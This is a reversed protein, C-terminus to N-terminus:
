EVVVAFFERTGDPSTALVVCEGPKSASLVGDPSIKAVDDFYRISKQWRNDPHPSIGVRDADYCAWRLQFASLQSTSFGFAPSNFDATEGVRVRIPDLHFTRNGGGGIRTFHLSRNASDVHVCDFTQEYPTEAKKDPFDPGWPASGYRFDANYAADSPQTIHWIGNRFTQRECHEHGTLNCLITGRAGSFDYERGAVTAKCRNQYAELLNRWPAM